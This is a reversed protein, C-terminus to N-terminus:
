SFLNIKKLYKFFGNRIVTHMNILFGTREAHDNVRKFGYKLDITDNEISERIRVESTEERFLAFLKLVSVAKKLVM